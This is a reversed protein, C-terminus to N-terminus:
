AFIRQIQTQIITPLKYYMRKAFSPEPPPPQIVPCVPCKKKKGKKKKGKKKKGKKKKGKKKKGKKGKKKMGETVSFFVGIILPVATLAFWIMLFLINDRLFTKVKTM